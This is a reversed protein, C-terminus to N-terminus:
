SKRSGHLIFFDYVSSACSFVVARERTIVLFVIVLCYNANLLLVKIHMEQARRALKIETRGNKTLM